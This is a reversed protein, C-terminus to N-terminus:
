PITERAELLLLSPPHAMRAHTRTSGTKLDTGARSAVYAPAAKLGHKSAHGRVRSSATGRSPRQCNRRKSAPQAAAHSRRPGVIRVATESALSARSKPAHGTGNAVAYARRSRAERLTACSGTPSSDASSSPPSRLMAQQQATSRRQPHSGSNSAARAGTM